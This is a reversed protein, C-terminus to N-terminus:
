RTRVRLKTWILITTCDRFSSYEAPVTSSAYVEIAAIEAADVINDVDGGNEIHWEIGDLLMRVCGRNAISPTGRTSRITAGGSGEEVALGPIRRLVDSLRSANQNQIQDSTVYRGLGGRQRKVFGIKELSANTRARIRVEELVPVYKAMSYAAPQPERTRVIIPLAVPTFGVKRILLLQTGTPINRLLFEGAENSGTAARFKQIEVRAGVIVEGNFDIVRGRVTGTTGSGSRRISLEATALSSVGIVFDIDPSAEANWRSKLRVGIDDPVGCLKFGGAADTEASTERRTQHLTKEKVEYNTWDVSVRAGSVPEDSDSDIIRGFIAGSGSDRLARGCFRQVLTRASPVSFIVMNASGPRLEFVSTALSIGLIDLLPHFVGVERFGPPVTDFGFRGLSDSTTLLSTGSVTIEARRLGGGNLSDIVAGSIQAAVAGTAQASVAWATVLLTFLAVILSSKM